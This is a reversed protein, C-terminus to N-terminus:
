RGGADTQRTVFEQGTANMLGDESETEMYLDAILNSLMPLLNKLNEVKSFNGNTIAERGKQWISPLVAWSLSLINAARKESIGIYRLPVMIKSLGTTMEEPSTTRIVIASTLILSIIRLGITTGATLGEWTLSLWTHPFIIRTGTNFFVPLIFAILILFKFRNIRSFLYRLSIHSTIVMFFLLLYLGAFIRFDDTILVAVPLLLMVTIKLEPKLRHLFSQGNCYLYSRMNEANPMQWIASKVTQNNNELRRCVSGAVSGTVWGMAVAGLCLWPLFVFIGGHRVLLMYALYLQVMNHILAGIISIGIISPRFYKQVRVIWFLFGMSITSIIAGSFSLIFTPSMFTGIILSSLITRFISIEMASRFGLRVLAVLTVMNALGLRLGPVPHPIMSESIQLVCAIAILLATKYPTPKDELNFLEHM